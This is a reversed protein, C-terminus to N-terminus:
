LQLRSRETGSIGNDEARQRLGNFLRVNSASDSLSMPMDKYLRVLAAIRGRLSEDWVETESGPGANSPSVTTFPFALQSNRREVISISSSM